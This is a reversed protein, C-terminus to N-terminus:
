SSKAPSPPPPHEPTFPAAPDTADDAAEAFLIVLKDGKPAGKSRTIEFKVQGGVECFGFVPKVMYNSNNSCKVKFALRAGSQNILKHQSKGGAASIPCVPPDCALATTSM